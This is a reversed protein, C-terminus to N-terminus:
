HSFPPEPFYTVIEHAQCRPVTYITPLLDCSWMCCSCKVVQFGVPPATLLLVLTTPYFMETMVDFLKHMTHQQMYERKGTVLFWMIRYRHDFKSRTHHCFTSYATWFCHWVFASDRISICCGDRQWQVRVPIHVWNLMTYYDVWIWRGELLRNLIFVRENAM